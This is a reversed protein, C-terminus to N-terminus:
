RRHRNRALSAPALGVRALPVILLAILIVFVRPGWFAIGAALCMVTGATWVLLYTRVYREPLARWTYAALAFKAVVAAALAWALGTLRAPDDFLWVVWRWVGPVASAIALVFLSAVAGVPVPPKGALGSWLRSVLFRWTLFVGALPAFALKWPEFPLSALAGRHGWFVLWVGACAVVLVWSLVASAAAVRVKIAVLEASSLPRVALFAPVGVDDSWFLPKSFAIGIPVALVIPVALAIALVRSTDVASSRAIWSMPLIVAAFVGAVLAPLVTGSSRWEFWFQAVSGNRFARRRAPVADALWARLSKTRTARQDDGARLRAIHRWSLLFAGAALAAVTAGVVLESRWIPAPESFSPLIAALFVGVTIAGLAFLRLPGARELLWLASLYFVMMAALMLAVYPTSPSEGGHWNTKWALYLAEIAVIGSLAPVAVLRLSTVPLTFLRRPFRGLGRNGASETYNFASFLLLFSVIKILALLPTPDDVGDRMEDFHLARGAVTLGAVAVFTTRQKRWIEWLLAVTSSRM